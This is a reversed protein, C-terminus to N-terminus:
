NHTLKLKVPEYARGEGSYFRSFMEYFELRLVQIAVLLAELVCVLANGFIIVPYYGAGGVTEALTFVVSMMGTHVLVFAGVRLFSLTNTVYSLLVEISEFLNQLIFDGWKETGDKLLYGNSPGVGLESLIMFVSNIHMMIDQDFATYDEPIGLLKKISNLINEEM